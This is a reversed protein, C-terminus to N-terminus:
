SRSIKRARWFSSIGFMAMIIIFVVALLFRPMNGENFSRYATPMPFVALVLFFFGIVQNWLINLPRVVGPIVHGLFKQILAFMSNLVLKAFAEIAQM